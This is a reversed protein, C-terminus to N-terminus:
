GRKHYYIYQQAIGAYRGFVRHDFGEGFDEDLARKIWVDVPFVDLRNYGFLLTCSAVKVGVGKIRCLAEIASDTDLDCIADLDVRGSTVAEAADYLYKARFGTKLEALGEIGASLIAEPTPFAYFEGDIDLKEGYTRCLSEVIKKIRPINNNQSIIFSMLTEFPEQRIIRIGEGSAMAATMYERHADESLLSLIEANIAAYDTDLSLFSEATAADCGDVSLTSDGLDRFTLLQGRSVGKWADDESYFRFCQGCDFTRALDFSGTYKLKISDNM